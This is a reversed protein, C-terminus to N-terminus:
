RKGAIAMIRWGAPLLAAGIAMKILDGPWFPFFGYTLMNEFGALVGLWPLGFLYIIGHGWRYLYRFKLLYRRNQFCHIEAFRELPIFIILFQGFILNLQPLQLELAITMPQWHDDNIFAPVRGALAAINTPYGIMQFWAAIGDYWDGSGCPILLHM